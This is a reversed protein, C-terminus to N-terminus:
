CGGRMTKVARAVLDVARAVDEHSNDRGLSFRVSSRAQAPTRGMAMLVHSPEHNATSCAAGVSVALGLLDLNITLMEGDLGDFSINSTNPLRPAKSGNVAAGCVRDVIAAEFWSRLEQLRTADDALRAAALECAKGFGAIAVVNETGPRLEREQHGGFLLPSLKTGARVYLAGIGQPGHLKHGSFSLMDVGLANVDVPIKGVTQVADSHLVVGRARIEASLAAVPQVTGIDNNALMISAIVTDDRLSSSVSAPNVLGQEDVPLLTLAGGTQEIRRCPNLIAQHEIATTVVHPRPHQLAAVAGLIALNNAETGGSTFIIEEPQAGILRAVRARARDIVRRAQQGFIHISSPNGFAGNLCAAMEERVVPDLPTTANHDLYILNM